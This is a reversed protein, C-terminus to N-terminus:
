KRARMLSGRCLRSGCLCPVDKDIVDLANKDWQYDITLEDGAHIKRTAFLGISHYTQSECESILNFTRLNPECSHNIFRSENGYIGGDICFPFFNDDCAANFSQEFDEDPAPDNMDFLYSSGLRDYYTGRIDGCKKTIVEGLYECVFAGPLIDEMAYLGWYSRTPGASPRLAASEPEKPEAVLLSSKM